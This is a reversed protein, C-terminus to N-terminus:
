KEFSSIHFDEDYYLSTHISTYYGTLSVGEFVNVEHEEVAIESSNTSCVDYDVERSVRNHNAQFEKPQEASVMKKGLEKQKTFGIFVSRSLEKSLASRQLEQSTKFKVSTLTLTPLLHKRASTQVDYIKASISGPKLEVGVGNGERSLGCVDQNYFSLLEWDSLKLTDIPLRNRQKNM